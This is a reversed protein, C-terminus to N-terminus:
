IEIQANAQQYFKLTSRITSESCGYKKALTRRAAAKPFSECLELYEAGIELWFPPRTKRKMGKVRAQAKIELLEAIITRLPRSMPKNSRLYDAAIRRADGRRGEELACRLEFAAPSFELKAM